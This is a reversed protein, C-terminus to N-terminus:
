KKVWSGDPARVLTVGGIRLEAGAGHDLLELLSEAFWLAEGRDPLNVNVAFDEGSAGIVEVGSVSPTTHGYVTGTLDALGLERTLETPRIRVTDGFSVRPSM